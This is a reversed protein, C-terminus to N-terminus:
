LSGAADWQYELYQKTSGTTVGCQQPSPGLVRGNVLLPPPPKREVGFPVGGRWGTGFM